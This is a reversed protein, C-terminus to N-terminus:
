WALYAVATGTADRALQSRFHTPGFQTAAAHGYSAGHADRDAPPATVAEEGRTDTLLEIALIDVKCQQSTSSDLAQLDDLDRSLLAVVRM